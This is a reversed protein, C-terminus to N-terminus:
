RFLEAHNAIRRLGVTRVTEPKGNEDITEDDLTYLLVLDPLVHTDRIVEGHYNVYHFPPPTENTFSTLFDDTKQQRRKDLKKFDTKFASSRGVKITM